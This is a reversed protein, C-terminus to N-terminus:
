QTREGELKALHTKALEFNPNLEIAKQFAERAKEKDKKAEYVLGINYWAAWPRSVGLDLARKYDALAENLRGTLFYSNGRNVVAEGLRPDIALAANFDSMAAQFGRNRNEIIGRNVLTKKRDTKSMAANELAKDCPTTDHGFNNSAQQYCAAADSEGFTTVSMQASAPAAALCAVICGAIMAKFVMVILGQRGM